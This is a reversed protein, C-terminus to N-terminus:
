KRKDRKGAEDRGFMEMMTTIVGAVGKAVEANTNQVDSPAGQEERCKERRKGAKNEQSKEKSKM